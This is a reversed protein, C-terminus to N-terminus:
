LELIKFSSPNINEELELYFLNGTLSELSRLDITKINRDLYTHFSYRQNNLDSCSTWQTFEYYNQNNNQQVVSGFPIDFNNLIHFANATETSSNETPIAHQSFFTARIFRSPSTFDGPLGLLGSGQGLPKIINKGIKIDSHNIASLNIYNALNTLHWSFTPANTVTGISNEYINLTKDVYEIVLCSDKDHFVYHMPPTQPYGYQPLPVEPVNINQLTNKVESINKCNTLIFTLLDSPAVNQKNNDITQFSAYNPFYFIGGALGAENIGDILTTSKFANIGICKYRSQFNSEKNIASKITIGNPIYLLTSPLVNGFELTRAYIIDNNKAKLRIGTCM